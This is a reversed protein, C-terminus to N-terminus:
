LQIREILIKLEPENSELLIDLMHKMNSRRRSYTSDSLMYLFDRLDVNGMRTTQVLRKVVKSRLILRSILEKKCNSDLDIYIYGIGSLYFTNYFQFALGIESCTKIHNEGYKIIATNKREKGDDLLLKGADYASVGPNNINRLKDCINITADNWNSYQVVDKSGIQEKVNDNEVFNIFTSLPETIVRKVYDYVEGEPFKYYLINENIKKEYRKSFFLEVIDEM